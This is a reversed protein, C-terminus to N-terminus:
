QKLLSWQKQFEKVSGRWSRLFINQLGFSAPYVLVVQDELEPVSASEIRMVEHTTDHKYLAGLIIDQTPMNVGIFM